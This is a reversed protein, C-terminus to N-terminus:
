PMPAAPRAGILQDSPECRVAHVHACVPAPRSVTGAPAREGDGGRAGAGRQRVAGRRREARM